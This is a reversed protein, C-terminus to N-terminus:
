FSKKKEGEKQGCDKKKQATTRSISMRPIANLLKNPWYM